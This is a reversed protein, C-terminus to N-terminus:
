HDVATDDDTVVISVHERLNLGWTGGGVATKFWFMEHDNIILILSQCNIGTHRATFRAIGGSWHMSPNSLVAQKCICDEVQSDAGCSLWLFSNWATQNWIQLQMEALRLKATRNRRKLNFDCIFNVFLTLLLDPLISRERLLTSEFSIGSAECVDVCTLM